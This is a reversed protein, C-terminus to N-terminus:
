FGRKIGLSLVNSGGNEAVVGFAGSRHHLRLTVAWRDWSPAAATGELFWYVLFRETERNPNIEKELEPRRSAWSPGIGFAASTDLVRDWPFARWRFAYAANVEWHRQEGFFRVIQGEVETGWRPDPSAFVWAPAVALLWADDYEIEGGPKFFEEWNNHTFWGGYVSIAPHGGPAAPVAEASLLALLGLLARIRSSLAM